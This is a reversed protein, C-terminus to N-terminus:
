SAIQRELQMIMHLSPAFTMTPLVALVKACNWMPVLSSSCANKVVVHERHFFCTTVERLFTRSPATTLVLKVLDQTNLLRRKLIRHSSISTGM